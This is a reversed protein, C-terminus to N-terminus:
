KQWKGANEWYDKYYKIQEEIKLDKKNLYRHYSDLIIGSMDDPHNIGMDNFYKSLRSEGWLSWNNRMWLGLGFHMRVTFDREELKSYKLKTSDQWFSNIQNFCDELDKPIYIGRLTDTTLRVKDEAIWKEELLKFPAIIEDENIPKDLLYRKFSILVITEQHRGVGVGLKYIYKSLKSKEDEYIWNSITAYGGKFPDYCLESLGADPFTKIIKKLSDSCDSNLIEIAEAINKPSKLKKANASHISCLCALLIIITIRM